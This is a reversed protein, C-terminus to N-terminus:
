SISTGTSKMPATTAPCASRCLSHFAEDIFQERRAQDEAKCDPGVKCLDDECFENKSFHLLKLQRKETIGFVIHIGNEQIRIYEM